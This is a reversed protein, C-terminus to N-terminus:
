LISKILQDLNNLSTEILNISLSDFSIDKTFRSMLYDNEQEESTKGLQGKKTDKIANLEKELLRKIETKSRAGELDQKHCVVTFKTKNRHPIEDSLIQYLYEGIHRLRNDIDTSDLVYLVHQAKARYEDWSRVRLREAGPLEILKINLDAVEAVNERLSTVSKRIKGYVLRLFIATKGADSLGVLLTTTPSKKILRPILLTLLIVIIAIVIAIYITAM